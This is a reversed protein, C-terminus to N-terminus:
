NKTWLSKELQEVFTMSEGFKRKAVDRDECVLDHLARDIEVVDGRQLIKLRFEEDEMEGVGLVKDRDALDQYQRDINKIPRKM